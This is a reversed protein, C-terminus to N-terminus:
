SRENECGEWEIRQGCYQCYNVQYHEDERDSKYGIFSDCNPCELCDENNENQQVYPKKGIEKKLAEIALDINIAYDLPYSWEVEAKAAELVEIAERAEDSTM